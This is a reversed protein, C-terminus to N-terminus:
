QDRGVKMMKVGNLQALRLAEDLTLCEHQLLFQQGTKIDIKIIVYINFIPVKSIIVDNGDKDQGIADSLQLKEILTM